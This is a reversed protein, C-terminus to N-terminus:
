IVRLKKQINQDICLFHSYIYIQSFTSVFKVYSVVYIRCKAKKQIILYRTYYYQEFQIDLILMIYTQLVCVYINSIICKVNFTKQIKMNQENKNTPKLSSYIYIHSYIKPISHPENYIFFYFLHKKYKNNTLITIHQHFPSSPTPTSILTNHQHPHHELRHQIHQHLWIAKNMAKLFFFFFFFLFFFLFLLFFFFPFIFVILYFYLSSTYNSYLSQQQSTILMQCWLIYMFLITYKRVSQQIYHMQIICIKMEKEKTQSNNLNPATQTRNTTKRCNNNTSSPQYITYIYIPINSIYVNNQIQKNQKTGLINTPNAYVIKQPSFSSNAVTKSYQLNVQRLQYM